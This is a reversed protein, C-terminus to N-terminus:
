ILYIFLYWHVVVFYSNEIGYSFKAKDEYIGQFLLRRRQVPMARDDTHKLLIKLM